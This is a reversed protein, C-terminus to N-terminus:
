DFQSLIGYELTLVFGTAVGYPLTHSSLSRPQEFEREHFIVDLVEGVADQM